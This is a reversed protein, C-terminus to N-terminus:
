KRGQCRIQSDGSEVRGDRGGPSDDWSDWHCLVMLANQWKAAPIERLAVDRELELVSRCPPQAKWCTSCLPQSNKAVLMCLVM